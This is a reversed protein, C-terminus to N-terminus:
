LNLSFFLSHTGRLPAAFCRLTPVACSTLPPSFLWSFYVVRKQDGGNTKFHANRDKVKGVGLASKAEM